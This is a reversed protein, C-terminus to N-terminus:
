EILGSNDFKTDSQQNNNGVVMQTIMPIALNSRQAEMAAIKEKSDAATSIASDGHDLLSAYREYHKRRAKALAKKTEVDNDNMVQQLINIYQESRELRQYASIPDKLDNTVYEKFASIKSEGRITTAIIYDQVKGPDYPRRRLEM